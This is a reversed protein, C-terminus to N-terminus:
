AALYLALGVGKIHQVMADLILPLDAARYLKATKVAPDPTFGLQALGDVTISIPTLRANIEGLNLTPGTAQAPAPTNAAELAPQPAAPAVAVPAEIAREAARKQEALMIAREAEAAQSRAAEREREAEAQQRAAEARREAEVLERAAREAKALEEARIRALEALAADAEAKAAALERRHQELDRATQEAAQLREIVTACTETAEGHAYQADAEFEDMGEFDVADLESAIAQAQESTACRMARSGIDRIAAIRQNLAEIRKRKAEAEAEKIRAQESDWEDRVGTLRVEEPKVIAVLRTCEANIGAVCRKADAKADDATKEVALRAQMLQMAARHAQDRGAKDKAETISTHATALGILYQETATSEMAIAARAEPPLTALEM